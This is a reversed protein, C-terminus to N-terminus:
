FSGKWTFRIANQLSTNGWDAAENMVEWEVGFRLLKTQDWSRSFVASERKFETDGTQNAYRLGIRNSVTSSAQQALTAEVRTLLSDAVKDPAAIKEVSANTRLQVPTAAISAVTADKMTVRLKKRETGISDRAVAGEIENVLPLVSRGTLKTEIASSTAAGLQENWNAFTTQTQLKWDRDLAFSSTLQPTVLTTNGVRKTTIAGRLDLADAKMNVGVDSKPQGARTSSLFPDVNLDLAMAQPACMTLAAIAGLQLLRATM